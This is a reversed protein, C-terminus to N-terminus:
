KWREDRTQGLLSLDMRPQLEAWLSKYGTSSRPLAVSIWMVFTPIRGWIDKKPNPM